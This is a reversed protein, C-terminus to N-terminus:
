DKRETPKRSYTARYLDAANRDSVGHLAAMPLGTTLHIRVLRAVDYAAPDPRTTTM